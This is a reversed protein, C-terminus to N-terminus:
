SHVLDVAPVDEYLFNPCFDYGNPWVIGGGSDIQVQRFYDQDLLQTAIGQGFFPQLDVVKVTQDQFRLELLYAELVRLETVYHM